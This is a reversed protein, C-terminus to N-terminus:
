SLNSLTSLIGELPIAVWEPRHNLEYRVEYMAKDVLYLGLLRSLDNPDSPILHDPVNELYSRLYATSTWTYWVQLWNRTAEWNEGTITLGSFEGSVVSQSAYHYSRLLGAIDRLPSTKIRREAVPRDPEGEFDIIAFDKGTFLIQGLHFDGHCRIRVTDIKHDVLLKFSDLIKNQKALVKDALEAPYGTLISRQKELLAFTQIAKTRMGQYLSRQYLSTFPEPVFGKKGDEDAALNAHLEGTRTGLLEAAEISVGFTDRVLEPIDEQALVAISGKPNLSKDSASHMKEATLGEVLRRLEDLTYVWADSKNPVFQNLIALTYREGTKKVYDIAGATDPVCDIPRDDTLRKGIEWEPNMGLDIRRMLKLIADRAFAASSNSQEGRHVSVSKPMEQIVRRLASTQQGEIKGHQSEIAGNKGMILNLMGFWLQNEWTADCLTYSQNGKNVTIDAIGAGPHDGRINCARTYDAFILPLAYTDPEGETYQIKALLIRTDSKNPDPIRFADMVTTSRIHRSKGAFWKQRVLFSPIARELKRLAQGTFLEDFSAELPISPLDVDSDSSEERAWALRFWYFNHGGLTLFYPLEGIPPFKTNGFLEEPTQGRFGSLDIEASQSFRSLNAVVLIAEDEFQRLFALVKPNSPTLMETTGRGFAQYRQRLNILQRMWSLMSDPRNQEIEVNRSTYHFLPDTIVPLFLKQPNARSFGANRDENWQMPTRVGDRDGLYINDGMCIEDGYYIVPTGPLSLLLGNMLEIKRRNDMLLPALRRRIGLNVRAEPERAYARYMFEREEETVMELTLEDHNRLFIGWQCNDPIDPTQDLIDIIPFSDEREIAMFLRPMVPFHFNMHCEDGEGFYAAADEPWQNAEALLMKDEFNEDVHTRLAKLFDHTEQLNECNTGEREFLYPIADLRVGDVGMKMWYDIIKFMAERVEPNDFNLDPQHHYFRHWFYSQAVPDWTWNSAEFDQFIIRAEKYKDPNDNWVYYNRWKSGPKARRSKQFWPHQDSTHNMVLETIVRLNRRHAENLFAKFDKLEGYIPNVSRYDAIDYGDDKLPSPFFPLLWITNVGLDQIYDLKQTLGQFDGIGDENSDHFSRVHIQYIVADKFWLAHSDSANTSNAVNVM